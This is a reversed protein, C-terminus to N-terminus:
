MGKFPSPTTKLPTPSKYDDQLTNEPHKSPTATVNPKNAVLGLRAMNALFMNMKTQTIPENPRITLDFLDQAKKNPLKDRLAKIAQPQPKFRMAMLEERLTQTDMVAPKAEQQKETKATQTPRPTPIKSLDPNPATLAAMASAQAAKTQRNQNDLDLIRNNVEQARAVMVSKKEEFLALETAKNMQIQKKIPMLAPKQENFSKHADEKEDKTMNQPSQGPRLLLMKGSNQDHHLEAPTVWAANKFSKTEAGKGDYMRKESTLVDLTMQMGVQQASLGDLHNLLQEAQDEEGKSVHQQIKATVAQMGGEITALVARTAELQEEDSTMSELAEYHEDLFSMHDDLIGYRNFIEAGEFELEELAQNINKQEELAEQLEGDTLKIALAYAGLISRKLMAEFDLGLDIASSVMSQQAITRATALSKDIQRQFAAILEKKESRRKAIKLLRSNAMFLQRLLEARISYKQDTKEKEKKLSVLLVLQDLILKKFNNDSPSKLSNIVDQASKIGQETPNAKKEAVAKAQGPQLLQRLEAENIVMKKGNLQFVLEDPRGKENGLEIDFKNPTKASSQPNVQAM